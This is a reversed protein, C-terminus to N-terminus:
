AGGCCKNMLVCCEEPSVLDLEPLKNFCLGLRDANDCATAKIDTRADQVIQQYQSFSAILSLLFIIVVVLFIIILFTLIKYPNKKNKYQNKKMKMKM